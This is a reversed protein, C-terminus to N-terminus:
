PDVKRAFVTIFSSQKLIGLAQYYPWLLLRMPLSDIVALLRQRAKEGLKWDTSWFRLSTTVGIRRGTVCADRVYDFGTETLYRYLVSKTYLFLHRPIDLGLWYRGFLRAELSELHPVTLILWGNPKLLRWAENLTSRPDFVHEFVHWLTIVDFFEASFNSEELIGTKVNLGAQDRAYQATTPNPEVGWTEWGYARMGVLFSGTACGVDLIRGPSGASQIVPLCLQRIGLQRDLRKLWSTEQIPPKAYPLYDAPYFAMMEIPSPHPNLFVLGCAVCRVLYFTGNAGHSRDRGTIFPQFEHGTCLNCQSVHEV